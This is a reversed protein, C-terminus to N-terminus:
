CGRIDSTKQTCARRCLRDTRRDASTAATTSSSTRRTSRSGSSPASRPSPITTCARHAGLRRRRPRRAAHRVDGGGRAAEGAVVRRTRSTTATKSSASTAAWRSSSRISGRAARPRVRETQVGLMDRVHCAYELPSWSTPSPGRGAGRRRRIDRAQRRVGACRLAAVAHDRRARGLVHVRVAPVRRRADQLRRLRVAARRPEFPRPAGALRHMGVCFMTDEPAHFAVEDFGNHPSARAPRAPDRRATPPPPDLDVTAGPRACRRCCSSRTCRHRRRHHQRVRRLRAVLDAPVAGRVLRDHGRRRVAGRDGGARARRATAALVPDLEVLRGGCTPAAPSPGGARRAHRPGRGRVHERGPDARAARRRARGPHLQQVIALRRYSRAHGPPRVRHAM